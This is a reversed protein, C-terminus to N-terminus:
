IKTSIKIYEKKEKLCEFYENFKLCRKIVCKKTGKAKKDVKGDDMLYSYCKPRLGVFEEMIKGGLEDKMLGIKKKKKGIPLPRECTYNSLDYKEEVDNAIDKYFDETKIHMIFSDTDMYCLKVKDGYKPKMDDYWYEYMTIKSLSLIALRLYIPKNAKIVTKKMGIAFLNESLWKTTRYNPESVLNNRKTDNTVLKIDRHKRVNEITKAFVANNMLKFFDKDFDNKSNMRYETNM